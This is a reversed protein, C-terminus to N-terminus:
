SWIRFWRGTGGAREYRVVDPIGSLACWRAIVDCGNAFATAGTRGSTRKRAGRHSESM